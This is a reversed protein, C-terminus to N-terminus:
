IISLHRRDHPFLMSVCTGGTKGIESSGVDPSAMNKSEAEGSMQDKGGVESTIKIGIGMKEAMTAVLYLGMGTASGSSRGNQGTFGKEFVRGIEAESIGMGDDIIQLVTHERPTGIEEEFSKFTISSAGYKASNIIMQTIMFVIWPKDAFVTVNKDVENDISVGCDILTRRNRKCATNVIEYLGIESIIYDNTLISSRAYYLASEVQQEVRELERALKDADPGHMHDLILKAAALPTKVEHVWLEIYNRYDQIDEFAQTLLSGSISGMQSLADYTLRGELFSPSTLLESVYTANDVMEIVNNLEEYFDRKRLYDICFSLGFCVIVFLGLLISADRSVGLVASMFMVGIACVIGIVIQLIRDTLYSSLKFRKMSPDGSM